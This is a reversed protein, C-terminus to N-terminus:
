ACSRKVYVQLYRELANEVMNATGKSKGDWCVILAEGYAAMRENRMPGAAKGYTEWDAPFVKVPINNIAAWREGLQDPGACGGSVVETIEFGSEKIANEVLAFDTITRSGAIIVKM